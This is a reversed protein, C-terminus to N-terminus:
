VGADTQEDLADLTEQEAIERAEDLSIGGGFSEELM